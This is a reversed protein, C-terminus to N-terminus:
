KEAIKFKTVTGLAQQQAEVYIEIRSLGQLLNYQFEQGAWGSQKLASEYFRWVNEPSATTSYTNKTKFVGDDQDTDFKICTANPLTPLGTIPACTTNAPTSSGHETLQVITITGSSDQETEVEIQVRRQGLNIDYKFKGLAWGNQAFAGEYFRRVEDATAAAVYTNELKIVGDDRDSEQETCTAGAFVPLGAIESCAIGSSPAAVGAQPAQTATPNGAIGPAAAATPVPETTPTPAATAAPTAPAPTIATQPAFARTALFAAVGIILVLGAIVLARRRMYAAREAAPSAFAAKAPASPASEPREAVLVPTPQAQHNETPIQTTTDQSASGASELAASAAPNTSDVAPAMQEPANSRSLTGAATQKRRKTTAM